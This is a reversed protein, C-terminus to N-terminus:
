VFTQCQATGEREGLWGVRDKVYLEVGVKVEGIELGGEGEDLTGAQVIAIGKFAEADGEKYIKTGCNECWHLTLTMGSPHPLSYSKLHQQGSTITFAPLPILLNTTHTSGSVKRCPLCHCLAQQVPEGTFTYTVQKCLCSGHSQAM